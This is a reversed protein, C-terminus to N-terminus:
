NGVVEVAFFAVANVSVAIHFGLQFLHRLLLLARVGFPSVDVVFSEEFLKM